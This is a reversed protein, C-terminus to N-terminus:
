VGYKPLVKVATVVGKASRRKALYELKEKYKQPEHRDYKATITDHDFKCLPIHNDVKKFLKEDGKHAVLHDVVTAREGCAYCKPNTKLFVFRYKDWKWDYLRDRNKRPNFSSGTGKKPRYSKPRKM